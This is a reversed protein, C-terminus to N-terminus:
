IGSDGGLLIDSFILDVDSAALRAMAEDYSAATEVAYGAEVLFSSFTFRISEEDDIILINQAMEAFEKQLPPLCIWSSGPLNDRWVTLFLSATMIRSSAM